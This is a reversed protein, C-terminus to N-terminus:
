GKSLVRTQSATLQKKSLNTVVDPQVSPGETVIVCNKSTSGNATYRRHVEPKDLLVHMNKTPMSLRESGISGVEPEEAGVHVSEATMLGKGTHYCQVEPKDTALNKDEPILSNKSHTNDKKLVSLKKKKTRLLEIQTELSFQELEKQLKEFKHKTISSSM